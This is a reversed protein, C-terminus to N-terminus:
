RYMVYVHCLLPNPFAYCPHHVVNCTSVKEQGPVKNMKMKYLVDSVEHNAVMGTSSGPLSVVVRDATVQLVYGLVLCGTNLKSFTVAEIKTHKSNDMTKTMGLGITPLSPALANSKGSLEDGKRKKKTQVV